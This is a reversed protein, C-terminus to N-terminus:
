RHKSLASPSYKMRLNKHLCSPILVRHDILDIRATEAIRVAVPYAIQAPYDGLEVIDFIQAHVGDPKRRDILRGVVVVTVVDAIVAVDHVFESRHRVEVLHERAHMLAAYLQDHVKDGVMGRVLVFPEDLAAFGLVVGVAVIIDPALAPSLVSALRGVVPRRAEAAAGPCVVFLRPFPIQVQEAFLLGVQIPFVGGHAALDGVDAIKPHILAHVAEAAVDDGIDGLRVSQGLALEIRDHAAVLMEHESRAIVFEYALQVFVRPRFVIRIGHALGRAYGEFLRGFAYVLVPALQVGNESKLM